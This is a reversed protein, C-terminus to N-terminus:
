IFALGESRWEGASTKRQCTGVVGGKSGEVHTEGGDSDEDSGADGGGCAALTLALVIAGSAAAWRNSTRNM